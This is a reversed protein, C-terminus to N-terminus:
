VSLATNTSMAGSVDVCLAVELYLLPISLYVIDPSPFPPRMRGADTLLLLLGDSGDLNWDRLASFRALMCASPVISVSGTTNLLSPSAGLGTGYLSKM